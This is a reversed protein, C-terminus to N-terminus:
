SECNLSILGLEQVGPYGCLSRLLRFCDTGKEWSYSFLSLSRLNDKIRIRFASVLCLMFRYIYEYVPRGAEAINFYSQLPLCHVRVLSM